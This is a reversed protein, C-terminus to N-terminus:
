IKSDYKLELRQHFGPGKEQKKQDIDRALGYRSQETWQGPKGILILCDTDEHLVFIFECDNCSVIYHIKFRFFLSILCTYQTICFTYYM